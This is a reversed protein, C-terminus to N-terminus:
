ELLWSQRYFSFRLAIIYGPESSANLLLSLLLFDMLNLSSPDFTLTILSLISNGFNPVDGPGLGVGDGGDVGCVGLIKETDSTLIVDVACIGFTKKILSWHIVGVIM